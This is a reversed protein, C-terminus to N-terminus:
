REYKTEPFARNIAMVILPILIIQLVIGPVANAFAGSLFAAWGFESKGLGFLILRVAGWVVRGALMAAILSVYIYGKKKPLLKYMLGSILGYAALEFCMSIGKPMLPPMGFLAFRLLPAIFGAASAYWPGCFFGCLLVPFHMPCLASGIEPVQATMFPFVLALALFMASLVLRLINNKSSIKKNEKMESIPIRPDNRQESASPINPIPIQPKM